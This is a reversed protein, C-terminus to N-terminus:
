GAKAIPATPCGQEVWSRVSAVSACWRNGVRHGPLAGSNLAALVTQPRRHTQKAIEAATWAAADNELEQRTQRHVAAMAEVIAQQFQAWTLGALPMGPPIKDISVM